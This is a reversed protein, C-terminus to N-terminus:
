IQAELKEAMGFLEQYSRIGRNPPGDYIIQKRDLVICRKCYKEVQASDHSVLIITRGRKHLDFIKQLCKEQFGLDGVALVEDFLLLEADLHAAISFGLRVLMGSSFNRVPRNIDAALESFNIIKELEDMVRKRSFGLISANLFINEYGSLDGVFGAGLELLPIIRGNTVIQGENPQYIGSILKLLTSKGIGNRGMIGVFEGPMIKLNVNELLVSPSNRKFRVNFKLLNSLLEKISYPRESWGMFQKKVKIFEVAPLSM